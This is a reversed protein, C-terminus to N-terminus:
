FWDERPLSPAHCFNLLASTNLIRFIAVLGIIALSLM